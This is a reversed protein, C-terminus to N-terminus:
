LSPSRSKNSFPVHRLAADLRDLHLPKSLYDNMGAALCRDRDSQTAHATVAIIWPQDSVTCERIARTAGLGDLGPMEVDMLVVDFGEARWSAVAENGDGALTASLGLRKLMAQCLLQNTRNDDVLLIRLDAPFPLKPGPQASPPLSAQLPPPSASTIPLRVIFTSGHGPESEVTISGGMLETLRKTIALGLGTGGFRRTTSADAQTFSDFINSQQLPTLGIGTDRVQLLLSSDSTSPRFPETQDAPASTATITISGESTFKVANSLLNTIIQRFRTVDGQITRPCDPAFDTVLTLSKLAAAPKVLDVCADIARRLDFPANEIEIRGVEIKSFDLVDDVIALLSEASNAASRAYGTQEPNLPTHLLLSSFGIVGNLPTRIEHSMVALFESKAQNANKAEDTAAVLEARDNEIQARMKNYGRVLIGIEDRRGGGPLPTESDLGAPANMRTALAILPKSFHGAILTAFIVSLSILVIFLLALANRLEATPAFALSRPISVVLSWGNGPFDLFGREAVVITIDDPRGIASGDIETVSRDDIQRLVSEWGSVTKLVHDKGLHSSYLLTGSSSVLDTRVFRSEGIIPLHVQSILSHLMSLPMRAVVTGIIQSESDRVASAFFVVETRLDAAFAYRGGPSVGSGEIDSWFASPHALKGIELGATDAIRVRNRDFFSLSTYVKLQNRYEILRRTIATPSSSPNTIISDNAIIQINQRRALLFSDLQQMTRSASSTFNDVIATRLIRTTSVWTIAAALIVSATILAAFALALKHAFRM